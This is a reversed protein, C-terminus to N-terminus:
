SHSGAVHESLRETAVRLKRFYTARSVHLDDAAQEHTTAPELCGHVLVARLLQEDATPGFTEDIATTLLMRVSAARETPTAGVALPNAALEGPRHFHRLAYRVAAALLAPDHTPAPAGTEEYVDDRQYGLLGGPGYDIVHCEISGDPVEVDLEPVHKAGTAVSFALAGPLRPNICLFAYRPNALGCRLNGSVGLMAQVPSRPDGTLNVSAQWIVAERTGLTDRAYHLWAGLRPDRWAIEPANVPTLVVTFGVLQQNTNRVVAARAPAARMLRESLEWWGDYGIADMRARLGEVDGPRLDDLHYRSAAAWSYGWRLAPNEILHALDISLTLDGAMGRAHLHDAIRRRMAREREPDSHRLDARAARRVLDHLTFGGALPEAFSRSALWELATEPDQEPLVARLLGLTTVRALAAVALVDHHRPDLEADTLRRVLARVQEPSSIDLPEPHRAYGPTEALLRLALPSGQAAALIDPLQERAAGCAELLARADAGSLPQIHLVRTVADWGDEWWGRQPPRRGAFVVRTTASLGPLVTRRLFGDLGSIREYTDFLLLPREEDDLGDLASALAEPTPSLDRGEILRPTWGRARGQRAVERLLASKGIGAPGHLHVIRTAAEASFLDTLRSLEQTRGVFSLADQRDVVSALTDRMEPSSQM